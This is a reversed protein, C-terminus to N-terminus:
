NGFADKIKESAQKLGARKQDAVKRRREALKEGAQKLDARKQDAVKGRREAIGSIAGATEKLTGKAQQATNKAKNVAAM